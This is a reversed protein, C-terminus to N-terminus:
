KKIKIGKEIKLNNKTHKNNIYEIVDENATIKFFSEQNELFEKADATLMLFNKQANKYKLICYNGYNKSIYFNEPNYIVKVTPMSEKNLPVGLLVKQVFANAKIYKDFIIRKNFVIEKKEKIQLFSSYKETLHKFKEFVTKPITLGFANEHGGMKGENLEKMVLSVVEKFNGEGRASGVLNNIDQTNESFIIANINKQAFKQAINGNIGHPCNKLECVFIKENNYYNMAEQFFHNTMQKRLSNIEQLYKKIQETQEGGFFLDEWKITNITENDLLRGGANIMPIIKFSFDTFAHTKDIFDSFPTNDIQSFGNLIVLRNYSINLNSMDAIASLAFLVDFENKKFDAKKQLYKITSKYIHYLLIGTSIGTINNEVAPNILFKKDKVDNNPHHDFIFVKDKADATEITEILEKDTGNDAFVIMDYDNLVVSLFEPTVSYGDYRSPIYTKIKANKNFRSLFVKFFVTSTIGDVDYDGIILIKGASQIKKYFTNIKEINFSLTKYEISKKIHEKIFNEISM